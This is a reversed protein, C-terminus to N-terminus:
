KLERSAIIKLWYNDPEIVLLRKLQEKGEDMLKGGNQSIADILKPLGDEIEKTKNAELAAVRNTLLNTTETDIGNTKSLGKLWNIAEDYKGEKVLEDERTKLIEEIKSDAQKVLDSSGFAQSAIGKAELYGSLANDIDGEEYATSAIQASNFFDDKLNSTEVGCWAFFLGIVTACAPAVIKTYFQRKIKSEPVRNDKEFQEKQARCWETMDLGLTKAVIDIKQEILLLKSAGEASFYGQRIYFFKKEPYTYYASLSNVYDLKMSELTKRLDIPIGSDVPSNGSDATTTEDLNISVVSNIWGLSYQLCSALYVVVDEKYGHKKAFEKALGNAKFLRTQKNEKELGLMTAGYGDNLMAKFISKVALNDNYDASTDALINALTMSQLINQGQKDVLGKIDDHLAM